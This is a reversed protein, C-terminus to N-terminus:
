SCGTSESCNTCVKCNGSQVLTMKNCRWCSEGISVAESLVEEISKAAVEVTTQIPPVQAYSYDKLYHIALVRFIFDPISSCFKVHPHDTGGSPAFHAHNFMKALKKLHVGHQLAISIARAFSHISSRYADGEKYMDIFIEGLTGDSYEGTRLFLKHGSVTAELTFGLRQKPLNRRKGWSSDSLDEIELQADYYAQRYDFGSGEGNGDITLNLPQSGKSNDRYLSVCKLGRKWAQVYLEKIEEVTATESLNVTKSISGSIFPQVVELMKIHGMPEIANDGVSVAFIGHHEIRLASQSLPKGELIDDMISNAVSASYGINTLAPLVSQNIIQTQGGGALKKWKVLAFDPEVGTTDCDMLLGITGTPALVSIQANRYGVSEGLKQTERWQNIAADYLYIPVGDSYTKQSALVHMSIVEQMSSRNESYSKFSGMFTAIEASRHYAKATLLSTISAAVNRGNTSDYPHGMRMLLAGLNAYGIGLPRFNYSNEATPATPYSSLGVLIEMATIMINVTHTFGKVDFREDMPKIPDYFKVLNISSLNCATDDLFMFESCPNSANIRGTEKCTHWKNIVDDFQIGPDACEWVAKAIEDMLEAASYTKHVEGTTRMITQHEGNNLFAEMFKDSVRVSNNSNQGSVTHYAEGNFDSDYGLSILDKAKKEEKSKWRIYDLIEPHDMDLCVMKAARRTTGGSKTAGAGKDFVELFSLLGSSFGGGSLREFRSRLPSFNTGTGSGFKFLRSESHVLSFISDLDDDVRQIFCASCQPHEYSSELKNTTGTSTETPPEHLYTGGSGSIGYEHFLGCNFWVPSNFAARQTLLIYSLENRFNNYDVDSKFYGNKIGHTAITNSIRHVVQKASVEGGSPHDKKNLGMKRFYKYAIIDTALQSWDKPVIVKTNEFIVKEKNGFGEIIRSIRVESEIEMVGDDTVFFNEIELGGKLSRVSGSSEM